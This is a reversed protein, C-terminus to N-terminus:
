NKIGLLEVIIGLQDNTHFPLAAGVVEANPTM